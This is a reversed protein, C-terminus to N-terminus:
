SAEKLKEPELLFEKLYDKLQNFPIRVYETFLPHPQLMGKETFYFLPGISDPIVSCEIEKIGEEKIAEYGHHGDLIAFLYKKPHKVVRIEGVDEGSKIKERKRKVGRESVKRDSVIYRLDIKERYPKVFDLSFQPKKM